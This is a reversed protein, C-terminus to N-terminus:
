LSPAPPHPVATDSTIRDCGRCGKRPQFRVERFRMPLLEFTLLRGTLPEGIGLLLKIAEAAQISGIIGPLAGFVGGYECEKRDESDEPLEDFLCRYCPGQGPIVTLVQGRFGLIGGHIMPTGLRLASDNLLFKSELSDTADILLDYDKLIRLINEDSIRLGHKEIRIHPNIAYLRESASDVKPRGVSQTDHLIQRQLNSIDVLDYDAVGITGVGAAAIYLAVPSGLGGAGAVLVRAAKLREQGEEGVEPLILQRHYRDLEENTLM